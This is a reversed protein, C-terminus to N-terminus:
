VRITKLAYLTDGNEEVLGVAGIGKEDKAIADTASVSILAMGIYDVGTFVYEYESKRTASIVIRQYDTVELEFLKEYYEGWDQTRDIEDTITESVYGSITAKQWM